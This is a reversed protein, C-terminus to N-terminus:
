KEDLSPHHHYDEIVLWPARGTVPMGVGDGGVYM